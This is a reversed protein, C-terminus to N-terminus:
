GKYYQNGCIGGCCSLCADVEMMTDPLKERLMLNICSDLLARKKVKTELYDEIVEGYTIASAHNGECPIVPRNSGMYGIPFGFELFDCLQQGQPYHYTKM